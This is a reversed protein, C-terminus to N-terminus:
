HMPVAVSDIKLSETFSPHTPLNLTWVGYLAKIPSVILDYTEEPDMTDTGEVIAKPIIFAYSGGIKILKKNKLTVM